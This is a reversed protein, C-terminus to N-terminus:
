NKSMEASANPACLRRIMPLYSLSNLAIAVPKVNINM